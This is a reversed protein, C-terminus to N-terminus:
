ATALNKMLLCASSGPRSTKAAPRGNKEDDESDSGSNDGPLCPPDEDSDYDLLLSTMGPFKSKVQSCVKHQHLLSHILSQTPLGRLHFTIQFLGFSQSVTLLKHNFFFTFKCHACRCPRTSGWIREM